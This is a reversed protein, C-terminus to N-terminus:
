FTVVVSGSPMVFVSVYVNRKLANQLVGFYVFRSLVV